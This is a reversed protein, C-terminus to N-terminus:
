TCPTATHKKFKRIANKLNVAVCIFVTEKTRYDSTNGDIDFYFAQCGKPIVKDTKPNYGNGQGHLDLYTDETSTPYEGGMSGAALALLMYSRLISSKTKQM